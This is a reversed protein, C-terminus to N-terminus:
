DLGEKRKREETGARAGFYLGTVLLAIGIGTIIWFTTGHLVWSVGGGAIGLVILSIAVVHYKRELTM